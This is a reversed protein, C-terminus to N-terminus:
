IIVGYSAKFILDGCNFCNTRKSDLKKVIQPLNSSNEESHLNLAQRKQAGVEVNETVNRQKQPTVIKRKRSILNILSNENSESCSDLHQFIDNRSNEVHLCKQCEFVDESLKEYLKFYKECMKRHLNMARVSIKLQDDCIECTKVGNSHGIDNLNEQDSENTKFAPQSGENSNEDSNEDSSEDSNEDSTTNSKEDSNEDSKESVKSSQDSVMVEAKSNTHDKDPIIQFDDGEDCDEDDEEDGEEDNDGINLEKIPENKVIKIKKIGDSKSKQLFDKHQYKFHIHLSALGRSIKECINCFLTNMDCFQRMFACSELHNILLDYSPFIEECNCTVNM